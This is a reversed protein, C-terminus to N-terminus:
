PDAAIDIQEANLEIPKRECSIGFFSIRTCRSKLIYSFIIGLTASLSATMTLVFTSHKELFDPDPCASRVCEIPCDIDM